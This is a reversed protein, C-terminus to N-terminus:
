EIKIHNTPNEVDRIRIQTFQSCLLLYEVRNVIKVKAITELFPGVNESTQLEDIKIKLTHRLLLLNDSFSLTM